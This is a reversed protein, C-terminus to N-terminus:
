LKLFLGQLVLKKNQNFKLGELADSLAQLKTTNKPDQKLNQVQWSMWTLLDKELQPAELEACKSVALLKEGIAMKDFSRYKEILLQQEELFGKNKTLEHLRNIRGFTLDLVEQNVNINKCNAYDRLESKTFAHFYFVQCRSVITPLLKGSGSILVIVTSISPEELTKLLSNSSRINLNHANNIIAVKKAGIFPKLSLSRIFEVAAEAGIEGEVDLIQFDPHNALNETALIKRAFEMALTKKGIGDPGSLLYAHAFSNEILQKDFINKARDHGFTQWSIM